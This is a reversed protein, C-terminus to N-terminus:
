QWWRVARDKNDADLEVDVGNDVYDFLVAQREVCDDDNDFLAAWRGVGIGKNAM